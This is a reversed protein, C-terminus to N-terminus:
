RATTMLRASELIRNKYGHQDTPNMTRTFAASELGPQGMEGSLDELLFDPHDQVYGFYKRDGSLLTDAMVEAEGVKAVTIGGAGYQMQLRAIEPIKHTKTHPRLTLNHAACDSAMGLLSRDM